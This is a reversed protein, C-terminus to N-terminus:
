KRSDFAYKFSGQLFVTKNEIAEAFKSSLLMCYLESRFTKGKNVISKEYETLFEMPADNEVVGDTEKFYDVAQVLDYNSYAKDLELVKLVEFMGEDKATNYQKELGDCFIAYEIENYNQSDNSQKTTM